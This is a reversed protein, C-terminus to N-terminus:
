TEYRSFCKEIKLLGGWLKTTANRTPELKPTVGLYWRLVM